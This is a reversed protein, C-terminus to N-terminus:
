RVQAWIAALRGQLLANRDLAERYDTTQLSRSIESRGLHPVLDAPVYARAHYSAGRRKLTAM